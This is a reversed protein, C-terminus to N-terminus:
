SRRNVGGEGLVGYNEIWFSERAEIVFPDPCRIEYPLFNFDAVEHLNVYVARLGKELEYRVVM